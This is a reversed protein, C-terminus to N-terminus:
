LSLRKFVPEPIHRIILMVLWWIRRRYIVDRGAVQAQRIGRALEGASATLVGPLDMGETMRTRVFGPKVTMVHVGSGQLRNRLGSLWASFGAKASGYVYNTARGRDGAVSSVGVIAGYGRAAYVNAIQGLLRAPGNFNTQLVRECRQPDGQLEDQPEMLGIVCVTVAPFPELAAFLRADDQPDLIDLRHVGVEVGYRANLDARDQALRDTDRAALELPHGAAAYEHALARGVDSTAGLILVSAANDDTM